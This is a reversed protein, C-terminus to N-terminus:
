YYKTLEINSYYTKLIDQYVLGEMALGYAGVQCMGVGHGWGRGLFRFSNIKGQSDLDRLIIFLSERLGLASRIRLGTLSRQGETGIIKLEALRHSLGYKMPQLDLIEGVNVRAESLRAKLEAATLQVQWRSYVSFRDSAAGNPNPQVELYDIRGKSDLHYSVKEGGIIKISTAPFAENNISRFLYFDKSIEFDIPEKNKEKRIKITRGAFPRATGSEFAPRGIKFLARSIAQLVTGRTLTARPHLSGDPGPSIIGEQLLAAVETRSAAPIDAADEGLLYDADAPSLLVSPRDEGYLTKALLRAFGGLSAADKPSEPETRGIVEAARAIWKLIEKSNASAAFYNAPPNIPLSFQLIDLLAIERTIARGAENLVPEMRRQTKLMREFSEERNPRNTESETRRQRQPECAVSLLYPVPENFVFESSETRGGCTSTYLANIPKGNYTAVIGRTERVAQDTLPHETSMGGYVQSLPTALLDFGESAFQGRNYLAYTRAAVAQAKLAELMPFGSPSLENPVVGRVYDEMPLVNIVSIRGRKNVLLEIRGRYANNNYRLPATEENQSALILREREAAVLEGNSSVAKIQLVERKDERDDKAVWTKKYGANMVRVMFTQADKQSSFEGVAVDFSGARNNFDVKVPEVFRQRLRRALQDAENSTKLSAIQVRYVRGPRERIPSGSLQAKVQRTELAVFVQDSSDYYTIPLSSTISVTGTDTALAVRVEMGREKEIEKNITPGAIEPEQRKKYRDPLYVKPKSRVVIPMARRARTAIPETSARIYKKRKIEFSDNGFFSWATQPWALLLALLTCLWAGDRRKQKRKRNDSIM